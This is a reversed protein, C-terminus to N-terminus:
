KLKKIKKWTAKHETLVGESKKYLKYKAKISKKFKTGDKLSMHVKSGLTQICAETKGLSWLLFGKNLYLHLMDDEKLRDNLLLGLDSLAQEKEVSSGKLIAYHPLNEILWSRFSLTDAYQIKRHM